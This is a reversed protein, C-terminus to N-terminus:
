SPREEASLGSAGSPDQGTANEQTQRATKRIMLVQLLDEDTLMKARKRLRNKRREANRIEAALKRREDKAVQQEEKLRLLHETLTDKDLVDEIRKVMPCSKSKAKAKSKAKSKAKTKPPTAGACPEASLASRSSPNLGAPAEDGLQPSHQRPTAPAAERSASDLALEEEIGREDGSGSM